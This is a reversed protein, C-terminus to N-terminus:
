HQGKPKAVSTMVGRAWEQVSKPDQRQHLVDNMFTFTDIAQNTPPLGTLYGTAQAAHKVSHKPNAAMQDRVLNSASKLVEDLPSISPDRNHMISYTLTNVLPVTGGFQSVIMNAIAGGTTKAEEGRVAHHVLAPAVIMATMFAAGIAIRQGNSLSDDYGRAEKGAERM